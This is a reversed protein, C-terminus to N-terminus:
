VGVLAVLLETADAFANSIYRFTDSYLPMAALNFSIPDTERQHHSTRNWRLVLL